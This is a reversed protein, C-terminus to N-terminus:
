FNTTTGNPSSASREKPFTNEVIYDLSNMNITAQEDREEFVLKYLGGALIAGLIPGAWYIWHYHPWIEMIVAPGLSRAPNIGCGTYPIGIFHCVSVALGISFAPGFTDDNRAPDTAALVTMVLILTLVGEVAFGQYQTVGAGLSVNGLTGRKQDPSVGYSIAAGAIAGGCQFLVYFIARLISIRRSVLLGITVAPNIHAGSSPGFIQALVAISLGFCLAIQTISPPTDWTLTVGCNVFLFLMTALFEAFSGRWFAISAIELAMRVLFLLPFSARKRDKYYM